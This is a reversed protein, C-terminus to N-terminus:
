SPGRGSSRQRAKMAPRNELSRCHDDSAGAPEVPTSSSPRWPSPLINASAGPPTLWERQKIRYEAPQGRTEILGEKVRATLGGRISAAFKGILRYDAEVGTEAAVKHALDQAKMWGGDRRLIAYATRSLQGHKETPRPLKPRLHHPEWTPDHLARINAKIQAMQRVLSQKERDIVAEAAVIAKLGVANEARTEAVKHRGWLRAYRDELEILSM